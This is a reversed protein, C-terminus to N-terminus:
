ELWRGGDDKILLRTRSRAVPRKFHSIALVRTACMGRVGVNRGGLSVYGIRELEDLDIYEIIAELEKRIRQSESRLARKLMEANETTSEVPVRLWELLLRFDQKSKPRVLIPDTWARVQECAKVGLAKLEDEVSWRRRHLLRDYLRCKWRTQSATIDAARHGLSDLAAKYLTERESAGERLLLFSGETVSEVDMYAVREGVPQSPDLSRIRQGDDLWMAFGGGLYLKRALAEDSNPGRTVTGATGWIPQPVYEEIVDGQEMAPHNVLAVADSERVRTKVDVAKEAFEAFSSRPLKRCRFWDSVLYSIEDTVAATALARPYFVPPGVVYMQSRNSVASLAERATLVQLGDRELWERLEVVDSRHAAVVVCEEAGVDDIWAPLEDSFGSDNGVVGEAAKSLEDRLQDDLAGEMLSCQEIVREALVQLRVDLTVPQAHFLRKWRLAKAPSLLEEFSVTDEGLSVIINRLTQDFRAGAPDPIAEVVVPGASAGDIRSSIVYRRNLAKIRNM